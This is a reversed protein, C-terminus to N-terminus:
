DRALVVTSTINGGVGGPGHGVAIEVDSVQREGCEGRVQRVAEILLMLGFKGPHNYSLGGGSTMSPLSGGPLLNGEEVFPGGEGPKCFGCEELEMLVNITYADYPEFVDVDEPKIGAMEYAQKASEHGPWITIDPNQWLHWYGESEGVGIVRVPKKVADRAREATTVIAAGGGDTILCCDMNHLPDVRLPSRLVDEWTIPDRKFAKPNLRAWERAVVAVEALQKRTTGYQYMHRAAVLAFHGVMVHLGYPAEFQSTLTDDTMPNYDDWGRPMRGRKSRNRSAFAILAVELQGASIACAAHNVFAEFQGGGHDSSDAYRPRIGLYECVQVSSSKGIGATFIGDVDKIKMGAEACAEKTAKAIMSLENHDEVLGLPTEAVGTIYVPDKSLDM